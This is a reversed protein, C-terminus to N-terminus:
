PRLLDVGGQPRGPLRDPERGHVPMQGEEGVFTLEVGQLGSFTLEDVPAAVARHVVVM